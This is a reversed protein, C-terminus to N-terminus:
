TRVTPVIPPLMALPEGIPSVGGASIASPARQRQLARRLGAGQREFIEEDGVALLVALGALEHAGHAYRLETGVIAEAAVLYRLPEIGVNGGDHARELERKSPPRTTAARMAKPPM